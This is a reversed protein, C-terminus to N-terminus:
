RLAFQDIFAWLRPLTDTRWLDTHGAGKVPLFRKRPVIVGIAPKFFEMAAGVATELQIIPNGEFEKHNAIIDM